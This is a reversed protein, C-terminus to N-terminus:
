VIKLINVDGRDEPKSENVNKSNHQFHPNQKFENYLSFILHLAEVLGKKSSLKNVPIDLMICIIKAYDAVPLDIDPTPFPIKEFADEMDPSWEQMLKEIDPM